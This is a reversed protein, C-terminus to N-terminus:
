PVYPSATPSDPAAAIGTHSGVINPRVERARDDPALRQDVTVDGKKSLKLPWDMMYGNAKKKNPLGEKYGRIQAQLYPKLFPAAPDVCHIENEVSKVEKAATNSNFEGAWRHWCVIGNNRLAQVPQYFEPRPKNGPFVKAVPVKTLVIDWAAGYLRGKPMKMDAVHTGHSDYDKGIAQSIWWDGKQKNGERRGTQSPHLNASFLLSFNTTFLSEELIEDDEEGSPAPYSFNDTFAHDKVWTYVGVPQGKKLYTQIGKQVSPPNSSGAAFETNGSQLAAVPSTSKLHVSADDMEFIIRGLRYGFSYSATAGSKKTTTSYEGSLHGFGVYKDKPVRENWKYFVKAFEWSVGHGIVPKDDFSLLVRLQAQNKNNAAKFLDQLSGDWDQYDGHEDKYQWQAQAALVDLNRSEKLDGFSAEVKVPEDYLLHGDKEDFAKSLTDGSVVDVTAVGDSDTVASPTKEPAPGPMDWKFEVTQGSLPNGQSDKLTATLTAIHPDPKQNRKKWKNTEKELYVYDKHAEDWGGAVIQTKDASLTLSPAPTPTPTATPEPTVTPVPTATPDPTPVPTNTPEPTPEPTATPVPTNTPVLTPTPDPPPPPTQGVHITSYGYCPVYGGTVIYGADNSYWVAVVNDGRIIM